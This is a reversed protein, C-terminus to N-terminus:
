KSSSGIYRSSQFDFKTKWNVTQMVGTPNSSVNQQFTHISAPITKNNGKSM